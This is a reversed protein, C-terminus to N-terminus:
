KSLENSCISLIKNAIVSSWKRWEQMKNFLL